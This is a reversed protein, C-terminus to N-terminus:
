KLYSVHEESADDLNRLSQEIAVKLHNKSLNSPLGNCTGRYFVEKSQADMIQIMLSKGSTYKKSLVNGSNVFDVDTLKTKETYVKYFVALDYNKSDKFYGKRHLVNEINGWIEPNGGEDKVLTFTLNSPQGYTQDKYTVVDYPRTSVCSQACIAIFLLLKVKM